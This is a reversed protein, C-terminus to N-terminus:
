RASEVERPQPVSISIERPTSPLPVPINPLAHGGSTSFLADVLDWGISANIAPGEDGAYGSQGNGAVTTITGTTDVKRVRANRVDGIYLNGLKDFAFGSPQNLSASTAPGGDGSYGALGNGAVVTLGGSSLRFVVNAERDGFYVDGNSATIIRSPAISTALAAAAGSPRVRASGAVTTIVDQAALLQASFLLFLPLRSRQPKISAIM